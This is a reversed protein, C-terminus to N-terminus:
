VTDNTMDFLSMQRAAEKQEFQGMYQFIQDNDHWIGHAECTDHFFRLLQTQNQSPLEYANGYIRIYHEKLGPFDRDLNAYFYEGESKLPLM